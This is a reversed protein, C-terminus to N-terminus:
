TRAGTLPIPKHLQKSCAQLLVREVTELGPSAKRSYACACRRTARGARQEAVQRNFGLKGVVLGHGCGALLTEDQRADKPLGEESCELVMAPCQIPRGAQRLRANRWATALQILARHPPKAWTQQVAAIVEELYPHLAISVSLAESCETATAM